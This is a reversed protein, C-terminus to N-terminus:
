YKIDVFYYICFVGFWQFGEIKTSYFIHLNQILINFILYEIKCLLLRLTVYLFNGKGFFFLIRFCKEPTRIKLKIWINKLINM